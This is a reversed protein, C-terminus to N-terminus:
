KAEGSPHASGPGVLQKTKSLKVTKIREFTKPLLAAGHGETVSFEASNLPVQLVIRPM